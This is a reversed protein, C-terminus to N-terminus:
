NIKNTLQGIYEDLAALKSDIENIEQENNLSKKYNLLNGKYVRYYAIATEYDHLKEDSLTAIKYNLAMRNKNNTDNNTYSLAKLYFEVADKYEEKKEYASALDNYFNYFLAPSPMDELTKKILQRFCDIAEEYYGLNHNVKGLCYLVNHNTTDQLSARQLLPLALSNNETQYYSIGLSQIVILSSDGRMLCKNFREIAFDFNNMKFFVYANLANMTTDTSDQRIYRESNDYASFYDEEKIQIKVLSGASYSDQPDLEWARNYYLKAEETRNLKELCMAICRAIYNPNYISDIQAYANIALSYKESRYLLDAKRVKFYTNTSDIMLLQNYCEIGKSYRAVAEYCLALQLKFPIDDPYEESLPNLIEIANLYENLSRYCLAKQYLLEKTPELNNIYEIAQRYQANRIYIQVTDKGTQNTQEQFEIDQALIILPYLFFLLFFPLSKKYLQKMISHTENIKFAFNRLNRLIQLFYVM